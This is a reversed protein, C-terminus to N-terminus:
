AQRAYVEKGDIWVREAVSRFDLPHGDFLVLDADKGPEISGIRDAVGLVQAAHITISALAEQEPLGERV